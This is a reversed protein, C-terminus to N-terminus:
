RDIYEKNDACLFYGLAFIIFKIRFEANLIDEKCLDSEVRSLSIHQTALSYDNWYQVVQEPWKEIEVWEESHHLGLITTVELSGVKISIGHVNLTSNDVDYQNCLWICLDEYVSETKVHLLGQFGLEKITELKSAGVVTEGIRTVM